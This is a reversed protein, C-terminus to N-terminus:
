KTINKLLNRFTEKHVTDLNVAAETNEKPTAVAPEEINEKVLLISTASNSGGAVVLSAEKWIKLEEVGWFYGNEEVDEKNAIESIRSDYYSKNEAYQKETSNIGLKLKGDVYLMRVSNEFNIRDDKIDVLVEKRRIDDEKIEFVLAQTKGQYNKGVLSWDVMATFMKVAYEYALISDYELKHDLCYKVKGQQEKVTKNFCGDFHVDRHSDYFKTTSVIPYIYGAKTNIGAKSAEKSNLIVISQKLNENCDNYIKATKAEIISKECKKLEAFLEDKSAFEKDPFDVSKIM